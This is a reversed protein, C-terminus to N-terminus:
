RTLTLTLTPAITPPLDLTLTLTLTLTLALALTPTLTLRVRVRVRVRARARVRVQVDLRHRMVGYLVALLTVRPLGPRLAALLALGAHLVLQLRSQCYVDILEMCRLSVFAVVLAAAM